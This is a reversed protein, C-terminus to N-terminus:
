RIEYIKNNLIDDLKTDRRVEYVKKNFISKIQYIKKYSIIDYKSVTGFGLEWM